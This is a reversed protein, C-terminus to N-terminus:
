DVEFLRKEEVYLSGSRTIKYVHGDLHLYAKDHVLKKLTARLNSQMTPHVWEKLREFTAGQPGCQYLLLLACDSAKLNTRLIKLFGNFEEIAPAVRTVLSDVIQRAEDPSVAHYLRVFEAMVWDLISVVITSDQANPDIGDALHANDRRNRIDYVVRLSRPIHLRVSEPENASPINALAGIVADTNLQKGVRDFRGTTRQQLLRLAAECFRGGEVASLRNGGLCYNRKAETYADLLEDVLKFDLHLALGQRITALM